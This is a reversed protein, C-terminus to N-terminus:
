VARLCAITGDPDAVLLRERGALALWRGDAPMTWLVEGDLRAGHLRGDALFYVRAKRDIVAADVRDDISWETVNRDTGLLYVPQDPEERQLLISDWYGGLIRNPIYGAPFMDTDVELPKAERDAFRRHGIRWGDLVWFLGSDTACLAGLADTHFAHAWFVADREAGGDFTIRAVELFQDELDWSMSYERNELFYVAGDPGVTPMAVDDSRWVFRHEDTVNGEHDLLAFGERSWFVMGDERLSLFRSQPEVAVDEAIGVGPEVLLVGEDHSVSLVTRGDRRWVAPNNFEHAPMVGPSVAWEREGDGSVLWVRGDEDLLVIEGSRTVVPPAALRAGHAYTWAEIPLEDGPGPVASYRTRGLSGTPVPWPAEPDLLPDPDTM